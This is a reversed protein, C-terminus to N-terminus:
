TNPSERALSTLVIQRSRMYDAARTYAVEVGMARLSPAIHKLRGSLYQGTKPWGRSAQPRPLLGLLETVKGRWTDRTSMFETVAAAVPDSEIAEVAFNDILHLYIELPSPHPALPSADSPPVGPVASGVPLAALIRAFDAMRPLHQPAASPLNRLTAAVEDLLAGFIQPKLSEYKALLRTESLRDRKDIPELEVPLLRAALDEAVPGLNITTLAIVRRFAIVSLDGDTYLRRRVVGDGTVAKCLINAFWPSIGAVNDLALCWGGHAMMIWQESDDPESRVQAASPDVLGALMQLATSKGTGQEGTLVLIPHAISPFLSAVLWGRLMQWAEDSVNILARLQDLRGGPQPIPLQATLPTRRFLVPSRTLVRWGQASVTVAKGDPTGLDIVIAETVDTNQTEHKLLTEHKTNRTEIQQSANQPAQDHAETPRLAPVSPPVSAVRLAVPEPELDAAEAEIVTLADSLASANLTRDHRRRFARALAKRLPASGGRLMHAINPGVKPVAFTEDAPTRGLRFDTLALEVIQDAINPTDATDQTATSPPVSRSLSPPRSPPSQSNTVQHLSQTEHKTNRTENESPKRTPPAFSHSPDAHPASDPRPVDGSIPKLNALYQVVNKPLSAVLAKLESKAARNQEAARNAAAEAQQLDTITARPVTIPPTNPTEHKTNQSESEPVAIRAEHDQERNVLASAGGTARAGNRLDSVLKQLEPTRDVVPQRSDAPWRDGTVCVFHARRRVVIRGGEPHRFPEVDPGTFTGRLILTLGTGSPTLEAYTAFNAVIEASWPRPTPSIPFESVPIPLNTNPKQNKTNPSEPFVDQLEIATFDDALVFAIGDFPAQRSLHRDYSDRVQHITSWSRRDGPTAPRGCPRYAVKQRRGDPTQEYRWLIWRHLRQLHDPIAPFLVSSPVSPRLSPPIQSPNQASM